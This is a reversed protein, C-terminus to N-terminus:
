REFGYYDMVDGLREAVYERTLGFQELSYAHGSKYAAQRDLEARFTNELSRSWPLEFQTYVRALHSMPDAVLERYRISVFRGDGRAKSEIEREYFFRYYDILLDAFDRTTPTAGHVEPAMVEWPMTFMSLSSPLVEYPHRVLHVFRAKPAARTVIEYRGPLLVNKMLLTKGPHRFLRRQLAARYTEVLKAKKAEPLRDVFRLHEFREPFPLLLMVAPTSLTLAWIAEDEEDSGLGTEHVGEWGGFSSEDIANQMMGTLRAFPGMRMARDIIESATITSFITQYLTFTTFRPDLSMLRHFFTTGSRPAAVIYIPEGVDVDHFEPHRVEDLAEGAANLAHVLSFVGVLSDMIAARKLNFHKPDHTTALIQRFTELDVYM